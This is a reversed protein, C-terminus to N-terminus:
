HCRVEYASAGPAHRPYTFLGQRKSPFLVRGAMVYSQSCCFGGGQRLLRVASNQPAITPNFSKAVGARPRHRPPLFTQLRVFFTWVALIYQLPYGQGRCVLIVSPSLAMGGLATEELMEFSIGLATPWGYSYSLSAIGPSATM